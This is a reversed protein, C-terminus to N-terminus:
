TKGSEVSEHGVAKAAFSLVTYVPVRVYIM